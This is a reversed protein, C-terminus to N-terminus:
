KVKSLLLRKLSDVLQYILFFILCLISGFLIPIIAGFAFSAGLVWGLYYESKFLPFVFALIFILGMIYDTIEIGNLFTVSISIAFLLGAMFRLGVLKLSDRNDAKNLRTAIRYLLFYTFIPLLLGGWWNPIGPMDKSYLIYHTPVGGHFYDWSIHAWVLLTVAFTISLRLRQSLQNNMPKSKISTIMLRGLSERTVYEFSLTYSFLTNFAKWSKSPRYM